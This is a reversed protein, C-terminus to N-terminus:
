SPRVEIRRLTEAAQRAVDDGGAALRGLVQRAIQPPYHELSSVIALKLRALQRSHLLSKTGLVRALEPLAEARGIDALSKVIACKFEIESDSFGSATVLSLLKKFVEPSRSNEAMRLAALQVERSSSDMALLLQGEATQDNFHLLTRLVEQRVRPNENGALARVGELVAADNISRLMILLNRLYYWRSDSLRSVIADRATPGAEMLRDMMFRRLSLSTEEALRDLLVDTFPEGVAAILERIVDFKSKGWTHLGNLVEEMFERSRFLGLLGCRFGEPLRADGSLKMIRLLQGYQGTELFLACMANLDDLLPDSGDGAPELIVLQMIIDSIGAEVLQTDLSELISSFDEDLMTPLQDAAMIRNLKKQYEDPVFEESAHERFIARVKRDLDEDSDAADRDDARADTGTHHVLKQLLGFIVPPLNIRNANVDELTDIVVDASMHPIMKYAALEGSACRVDFTSRLFQRRLEPNLRSVFSALKQYPLTEDVELAQLADAHQIFDAMVREYDAKEDGNHFQSNLIAALLEPDIGEVEGEGAGGMIVGRAFREWLSEATTAQPASRITEEDTATLLDYRIPRVTISTLRAKIWINEIGGHRQIDDRKLGLITYFNRLEEATLGPALVLAAIGREFLARALDRFIRNSKDLFEGGVMLADRSVGIVLEKRSQMLGAYVKVVKDLSAAIVPHEKPYSRFNRHSINLEVLLTGIKGIAADGSTIDIQQTDM